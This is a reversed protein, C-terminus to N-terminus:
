VGLGWKVFVFMYDIMYEVDGALVIDGFVGLTRNQGGIDTM